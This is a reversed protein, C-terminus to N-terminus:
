RNLGVEYGPPLQGGVRPIEEQSKDQNVSTVESSKYLPVVYGAQNFSVSLACRLHAYKPRIPDISYLDSTRMLPMIVEDEIMLSQCLKCQTDPIVLTNM